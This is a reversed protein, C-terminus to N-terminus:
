LHLHVPRGIYTFSWILCIHILCKETTGCRKKFAMNAYGSVTVIEQAENDYGIVTLINKNTRMIGRGVGGGGGVGLKQSM